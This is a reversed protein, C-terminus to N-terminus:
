VIHPFVTEPGNRSEGSEFRVRMRRGHGIVIVVVKHIIVVVFPLAASRESERLAIIQSLDRDDNTREFADPDFRRGTYVPVAQATLCERSSVRKSAKSDM